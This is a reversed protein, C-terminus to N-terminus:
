IKEIYNLFTDANNKTILIPNINEIGIIEKKNLMALIYKIAKKSLKKVDVVLTMDLTNNKIARIGEESTDMGLVLTSNKIGKEQLVLSAGLAMKDDNAVIARMLLNDDLWNEVVQIANIRNSSATEKRLLTINPAKNRLAEDFGQTREEQVLTNLTAMLLGINGKDVHQALFQAQQKGANKSFTLLSAITRITATYTNKYPDNKTQSRVEETKQIPISNDFIYPGPNKGIFLVPIKKYRQQTVKVIDEVIDTNVLQVIIANIKNRQSVFNRIQQRQKESNNNADIAIIRIKLDEGRKKIESLFQTNPYTNLSQLSLGIVFQSSTPVTTKTSVCSLIALIIYTLLVTTFINNRKEFFFYSKNEM